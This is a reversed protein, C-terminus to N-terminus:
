VTLSGTVHSNECQKHIQSCLRDCREAGAEALHVSIRNIKHEM